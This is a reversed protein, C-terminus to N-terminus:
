REPCDLAIDSRDPYNILVARRPGWFVFMSGAAVASANGFEVADKVHEVTGAGGAAIVPVSVASSIASILSINMGSMSGENEVDTILIEGAGNQALQKAWCVPDLHTPVSANHSCVKWGGDYTRVDIAGIISQSGFRNALGSVFEPNEIAGTNVCIKEAGADFLEKAADFTNIGGGASFPMYCEDAVSRFVGLQPSRGNKRADIDLVIVEDVEKENFIRIANLPDGLYRHDAFARGKVLGSNSILLVPILRFRKQAM